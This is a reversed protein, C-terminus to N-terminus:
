GASRGQDRRWELKKQRIDAFLLVSSGGDREIGEGDDSEQQSADRRGEGRGDSGEQCLEAERGSEERRLGLGEGRDQDMSDRRTKM